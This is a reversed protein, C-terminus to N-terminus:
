CRKTFNPHQWKAITMQLLKNGPKVQLGEVKTALNQVHVNMPAAHPQMLNKLNQKDIRKSSGQAFWFTANPIM